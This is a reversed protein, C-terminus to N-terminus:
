YFFTLYLLTISTGYSFIQMAAAFPFLPFDEPIKRLKSMIYALLFFFVFLYIYRTLLRM